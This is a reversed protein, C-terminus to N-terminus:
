NKCYSLFDIVLAILEKCSQHDFYRKKFESIVKLLASHPIFPKYIKQNEEIEQRLTNM